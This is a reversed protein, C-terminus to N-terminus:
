FTAVADENNQIKKTMSRMMIGATMEGKNSKDSEDFTVESKELTDKRLGTSSLGNTIVQYDKKDELRKREYESSKTNLKM